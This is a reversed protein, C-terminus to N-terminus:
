IGQKELEELYELGVQKVKHLFENAADLRQEKDIVALGQGYIVGAAFMVSALDHETLYADADGDILRTTLKNCAVVIEKPTM